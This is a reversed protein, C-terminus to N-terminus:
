LAPLRDWSYGIAWPTMVQEGTTLTYVIPSKTHKSHFCCTPVAHIKHLDYIWCKNKESPNVTNRTFQTSLTALIFTVYAKVMCAHFLRFCTHSLSNSGSTVNCSPLPTQTCNYLVTICWIHHLNNCGSTLYTETVSLIKVLKSLSDDKLQRYNVSSLRYNGTIYTALHM